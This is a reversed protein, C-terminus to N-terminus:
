SKLIIAQVQRLQSWIEGEHEGAGDRRTRQLKHGAAREVREM